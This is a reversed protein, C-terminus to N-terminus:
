SAARTAKAVVARGRELAKHEPTNPYDDYTSTEIIALLAELLEPAAAILRANAEQDFGASIGPFAVLGDGHMVNNHANVRWPGPTFAASV